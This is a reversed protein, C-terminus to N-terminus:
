GRTLLLNGNVLVSGRWSPEVLTTTDDQEIIAPGAFDMGAPMAARHYIAAQVPGRVGAVRITRPPRHPDAHLPRHEGEDLRDSGGARHM